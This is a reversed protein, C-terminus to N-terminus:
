VAAQKQEGSAQGEAATARTRNAVVEAVVLSNPILIEANDDTRLRLTRFGVHEVTGEHEKFRIRDGLAFPREFLLYVGAFFNRLLDQLALSVALGVVGIAAVLTAPPIGFIDLLVVAGVTFIALHVLRAGLLTTSADVSARVAARRFTAGARRGLFLTAALVVVAKVLGPLAALLFPLALQTWWAQLGDPLADM